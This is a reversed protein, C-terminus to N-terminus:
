PLWSWVEVMFFRVIPRTFAVIMPVRETAVKAQGTMEPLLRGDPQEITMVVRVVKGYESREAAPAIERVIGAFGEDPFAWAKAVAHSGVKVAGVETEPVRIEVLLSSSDEITALQDGRALFDGLAFRLSGSLVRGAIPAKVQANEVSKQYLELQVQERQIDAELAQIQELRAPSAVLVLGKRAEQLRQQDLEAVSRARQYDQDSVAKKLFAKKLRAAEASSFELRKQATAVEQRARDIEETRAGQKAISLNARLRALAAESASVAAREADDTLRAIVEGKEVRDGEKRFVERVDGSTLARVDARANPLVTFSGSPEYTYPWLAAAVLIAIIAWDTRRPAGVSVKGPGISGRSSEARRSSTWLTWALLLAVIVIGVGGFAGELWRGPFLVVWAMLWVVYVMCLVAYLRLVNPSLRRTENWPREYRMLAYTAQERLDSAQFWQVLWNYGDRKILPNLQLLFFASALLAQGILVSPLFTHGHRFMLWGGVCLVFVMLQAVLSAGVIKLRVGRAASEAAGGTDTHFRPILATGLVIGFAPTARTLLRIASARAVESVLNMLAVGGVLMALLTWPELLRVFSVGMEVRHTWMATIAGVTAAILVLLGILGGALPLNLLGGVPLLPTLPLAVRPAAGLGRFAGWLGTLSGPLGPGTLAGPVSSPPPTEPAVGPPRPGRQWGAIVAEADTQAPVPLPEDRGAILLDGTALDNCFDELETATLEVGLQERAARIIANSDRGGDMLRALEFEAPELRIPRGHRVGTLAYYLGDASRAASGFVFKRYPHRPSEM